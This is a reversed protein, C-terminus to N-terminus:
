DDARPSSRARRKTSRQNTSRAAFFFHKKQLEIEQLDRNQAKVSVAGIVEVRYRRYVVGGFISSSSGSTTLRLPISSAREHPM